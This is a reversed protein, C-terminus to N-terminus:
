TLQLHHLVAIFGLDSAVKECSGASLLLADIVKTDITEDTPQYGILIFGM